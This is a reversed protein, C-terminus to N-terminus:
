PSAARVLGLPAAAHRQHALSPHQREVLGAPQLRHQARRQDFDHDRRRAVRQAGHPGREPSTWSKPSRRCTRTGSADTAGRRAIPARPRDAEVDLAHALHPRRELVYNM